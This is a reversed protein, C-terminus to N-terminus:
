IFHRRLEKYESLKVAFNICGYKNMVWSCIFRDEVKISIKYVHKTRRSLVIALINSEVDCPWTNSEQQSRRMNPTGNIQTGTYSSSRRSTDQRIFLTWERVVNKIDNFGKFIKITLPVIWLFMLSHHWLNFNRQYIILLLM